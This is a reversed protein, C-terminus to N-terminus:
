DRTIIVFEKVSGEKVRQEYRGVIADHKTGWKPKIEETISMDITYM